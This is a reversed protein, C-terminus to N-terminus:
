YYLLSLFSVLLIIKQLIRLINRDVISRITFLMLAVMAIAIRSIFSTCTKLFSAMVRPFYREGREFRFGQCLLSHVKLSVYSMIAYSAYKNNKTV